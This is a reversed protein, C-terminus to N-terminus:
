EQLSFRFLRLPRLPHLDRSHFRIRLQPKGALLHVLTQRAAPVVAGHLRGARGHLLDDDFVDARIKVEEEEQQGAADDRHPLPQVQREQTRDEAVHEDADHLIQPDLFLDIVQPDHGRRFAAGHPIPLDDLGLRGRQHAVVDGNEAGAVLDRRVGNHGRALAADVLREDGAFGVLDDLARAIRQEGAAKDHAAAAARPQRLDARVAEDGAQRDLGPLGARLRLRLHHARERAEDLPDTKQDNRQPRDHEDLFVQPEFARDGVGDGRRDARDDAHDRLSQIQQRAKREHRADDPQGVAARQDVIHAADFRQGADVREADVLSARDGLGLHGDVVDDGQLGVAIDRVVDAHDHGIVDAGHLVVVVGHGGQAAIKGALGHLRGDRGHREPRCLFVAAHREMLVLRIQEARRLDQQGGARLLVPKQRLGLFPRGLAAAHQQQGQVVPLQVVLRERRLHHREREDQQGVLDPGFRRLGERIEGLLAHAGLDDGAVIGQGDGLDGAARADRVRLFEDVRAREFRIRLKCLRRLFHGDEAADRRILLFLKDRGHLPRPMGDGHRAVADVVHQGQAFRVAGDGHGGARAHRTLRRM